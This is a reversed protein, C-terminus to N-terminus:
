LGCTTLLGSKHEGSTQTGKDGSQVRYTTVANDLSCDNIHHKGQARSQSQGKRDQQSGETESCMNVKQLLM